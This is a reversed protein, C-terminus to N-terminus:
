YPHTTFKRVVLRGCGTVARGSLGKLGGIGIDELFKKFKDEPFDTAPVVFSTTITSGQPIAEFKNIGRGQNGDLIPYQEVYTKRSLTVKGYNFGFYDKLSESLNKLRLNDRIWARFHQPLLIINGKEDRYHEMFGQEHMPMFGLIKDSVEFTVEAIYYDAHDPKRGKNTNKKEELEEILNKIEPDATDVIDTYHAKPIDRTFISKAMCYAIQALGDVQEYAISFIGRKQLNTAAKEAQKKTIKVGADSLYEFIEDVRGKGLKQVAICVRVENDWRQKLEQTM